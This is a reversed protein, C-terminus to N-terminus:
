YLYKKFYLYLHPNTADYNVNENNIVVSDLTQHTCTVSKLRHFMAPPCDISEFHPQDDKAIRLTDRFMQGDKNTIKFFFVDEPQAYSIPLIFSDIGVARNLLVTDTGMSRAAIITLTDELKPQSGMLKYSTVVTNNLPCDISSCATFGLAVSLLFIIRRM